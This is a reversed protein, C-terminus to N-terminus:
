VLRSPPVPLVRIHGIRHGLWSGPWVHLGPRNFGKGAWYLKLPGWAALAQMRGSSTM